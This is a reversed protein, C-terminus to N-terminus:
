GAADHGRTHLMMAVGRPAVIAEVEVDSGTGEQRSCVQSCGGM